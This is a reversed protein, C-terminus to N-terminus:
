LGSLIDHLAARALAAEANRDALAATVADVVVGTQLTFVQNVLGGLSISSNLQRAYCVMRGVPYMGFRTWVISDFTDVYDNLPKVGDIDSLLPDRPMAARFTRGFDETCMEGCEVCRGCVTTRASRQTLIFRAKSCNLLLDTVVRDVVAAAVSDCNDLVVLVRRECLAASLSALKSTVVFVGARGGANHWLAFMESIKYILGAEDVAASVDAFIVCDFARRVSLYRATGVAVVSKGSEAAGHILVARHDELYELVSAMEIERGIIKGPRAPIVGGDLTPFQRMAPPLAPFPTADHNGAAPLLVFGIDAASGLGQAGVITDAASFAASITGGSLLKSYFSAMFEAAAKDEVEKTTAVVHQVGARVIADGVRISECASLVVLSTPSFGGFFTRLRAAGISEAAGNSEFM